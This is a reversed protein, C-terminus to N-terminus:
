GTSSAIQWLQSHRDMLASLTLIALFVYRYVPAKAMDQGTIAIALPTQKPKSGQKIYQKKPPKPTPQKKINTHYANM